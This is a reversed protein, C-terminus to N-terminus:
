VLTVHISSFMLVGSILPFCIHNKSATKTWKNINTDSENMIHNIKEDHLLLTVNYRQHMYLM